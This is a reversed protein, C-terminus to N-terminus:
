WHSPPAGAIVLRYGVDLADLELLHGHRDHWRGDGLDRGLKTVAREVAEAPVASFGSIAMRVSPDLYAEPRRWYAGCFGDICDAPVPVEVVETVPLGDLAADLTALGREAEAIEPLYDAVLWFAAISAPDWTLVVQRSSVRVMEGFGAAADSWHHHTLVALSADFAADPFPLHEAVGQVVPAAAPSRQALMTRSPEVAATHRGVPGYSGTGSGVDVVTRADRLARDIAAVVSPDPRRHRGYTVGITDYRADAAV